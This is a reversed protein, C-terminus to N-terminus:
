PECNGDTASDMIRRRGQDLADIPWKHHSSLTAQENILQRMPTAVEDILTAYIMRACAAMEVVPRLNIDADILM